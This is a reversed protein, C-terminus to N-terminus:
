KFPPVRAPVTEEIVFFKVIRVEEVIRVPFRVIEPTIVPEFLKLRCLLVPDAVVTVKDPLLVGKKPDKTRPVGVTALISDTDAASFIPLV